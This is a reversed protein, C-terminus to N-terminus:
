RERVEKEWRIGDRKIGLSVSDGDPFSACEQNELGGAFASRELARSWSERNKGFQLSANWKM